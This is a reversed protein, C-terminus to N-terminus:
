GSNDNYKEWISFDLIPEITYYEKADSEAECSNITTMLYIPIIRYNFM